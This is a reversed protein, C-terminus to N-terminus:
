HDTGSVCKFVWDSYFVLHPFLLFPLLLFINLVNGRLGLLVTIQLVHLSSFPAFHVFSVNVKKRAQDLGDTWAQWCPDCAALGRRSVLAEDCLGSTLLASLNASFVM